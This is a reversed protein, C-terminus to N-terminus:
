QYKNKISIWFPDNEMYEKAKNAMEVDGGYFNNPTAINRVVLGIKTAIGPTDFDTDRIALYDYYAAEYNNTARMYNLDHLMTHYDTKNSPPIRNIIKTIVHTGPGTFQQGPFHFEMSNENGGNIYEKLQELNHDYPAISPEIGAV